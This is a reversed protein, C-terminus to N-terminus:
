AILSVFCKNALSCSSKAYTLDVYCLRLACLRSNRKKRTLKMWKPMYISLIHFHFQLSFLVMSLLFHLIHSKPASHVWKADPVLIKTRCRTYNKRNVVNWSWQIATVKGYVYSCITLETVLKFFSFLFGNLFSLM